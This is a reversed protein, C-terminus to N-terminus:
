SFLTTHARKSEKNGSARGAQGAEAVPETVSTELPQPAWSLLTHQPKMLQGEGTPETQRSGEQHTALPGIPLDWITYASSPRLVQVQKKLLLTLEAQTSAVERSSQDHKVFALVHPSTDGVEEWQLTASGGRLELTQVPGEYWGM